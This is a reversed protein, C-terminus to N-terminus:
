SPTSRGPSPSSRQSRPAPAFSDAATALALLDSAGMVLPSLIRGNGDIRYGMPTAEARYAAAVEMNRQLLVPCAIGSGAVLEQNAAVEGTTVIIPLPDRADRAALRALQFM